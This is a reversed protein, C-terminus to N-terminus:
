RWYGRNIPRLDESTIFATDDVDKVIQHVEGARKRVIGLDLITVMGDKGRAPIETVAFGEERLKDAIANGFKSSIIKIHTFGIALKGEAYSGVVWGTAFGAAYFFVHYWSQLNSLVNSIALVFILAQFFAFVWALKKRDRILMMMRLTSFSMEFVRLFFIIIVGVWIPLSAFDFM